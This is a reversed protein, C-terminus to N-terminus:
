ASVKARFTLRSLGAYVALIGTFYLTMNWFGETPLSGRKFLLRQTLDAFSYHPSYVWLGRLLPNEEVQLMHEVYGVGYLGYLTILLTVTFGAIGGFRSALATALALLPGIVLLFLTVYQVNLTWWMAREDPLSPRAGFQTILGTIIALPAVFCFVALWIEFLQRTPSIGTTQFYEGIGSKANKEGEKAATYLGWLLTCSWLTGWAALIRAPQVLLPKETASSVLPLAFPMIIVALACIVWAKRQFITALTLRFLRM